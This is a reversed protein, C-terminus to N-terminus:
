PKAHGHEENWTVAQEIAKAVACAECWDIPDAGSEECPIPVPTIM